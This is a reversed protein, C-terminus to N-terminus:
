RRKRLFYTLAFGLGVALAVGLGIEFAVVKPNLSRAGPPVNPDRLVHGYLEVYGFTAVVLLLVILLLGLFFRRVRRRQGADNPEDRIEPREM